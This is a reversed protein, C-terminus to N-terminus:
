FIYIVVIHIHTHTHLVHKEQKMQTWVWFCVVTIIIVFVDCKVTWWMCKSNQDDCWSHQSPVQKSNILMFRAINRTNKTTSITLISFLSFFFIMSFNINWCFKILDGGFSNLRIKTSSIIYLMQSFDRISLVFIFTGILSIWGM